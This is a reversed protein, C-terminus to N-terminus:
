LRDRAMMLAYGLLNQRKWKARDFRDPDNMSLGIVWIHDKVASEESYKPIFVIHYQSKCKVHSLSQNDM